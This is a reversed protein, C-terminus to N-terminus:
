AQVREKIGFDSLVPKSGEDEYNLIWLIDNQYNRLERFYSCDSSQLVRLSLLTFALGVGLFHMRQFDGM